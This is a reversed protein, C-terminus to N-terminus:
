CTNHSSDILNVIYLTYLSYNISFIYVQKYLIDEAMKMNRFFDHTNSGNVVTYNIRSQRALQQLSQVPTQIIYLNYCKNNVWVYLCM